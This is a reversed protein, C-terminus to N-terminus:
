ANAQSFTNVTRLSVSYLRSCSTLTSSKLGPSPMLFKRDVLDSERLIFAFSNPKNTFFGSLKQNHIHLSLCEYQGIDQAIMEKKGRTDQVILIPFLPLLFIVQQNLPNQEKDPIHQVDRSVGSLFLNANMHKMKDM